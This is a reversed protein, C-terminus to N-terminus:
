RRGAGLSKRKPKETSRDKDGARPLPDRDVMEIGLPAMDGYRLGSETGRVCGRQPRPLAALVGFM